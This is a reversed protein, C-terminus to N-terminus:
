QAAALRVQGMKAAFELFVGNDLQRLDLSLRSVLELFTSAQYDWIITYQQKDPYPISATIGRAANKAEDETIMGAECAKDLLRACVLSTTAKLAEFKRKGDKKKWVYFAMNAEEDEPEPDFFDRARDFMRIIERGVDEPKEGKSAHDFYRNIAASTSIARFGHGPTAVVARSFGLYRCLFALRAFRATRPLVSDLVGRFAEQESESIFGLAPAEPNEGALIFLMQHIQNDQYAANRIEAPNLRVATVNYLNFIQRLRKEAVDRFLLVPLQTTTIRTRFAAGLGKKGRDTADYYRGRCEYLPHSPDIPYKPLKFINHFFNYISTLRQKGDIISYSEKGLQGADRHHLIISPIPIGLLISRILEKQKAPGWVITRQWPPNLDLQKDAIMARLMDLNWMVPSADVPTSIEEELDEEPSGESEDAEESDSDRKDDRLLYAEVADYFQDKIAGDEYYDELDAEADDDILTLISQLTSLFEDPAAGNHFASSEYLRRVYDEDKTPPMDSGFVRSWVRIKGGPEKHEPM